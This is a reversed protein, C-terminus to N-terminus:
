LTLGPGLPHSSTSVTFECIPGIGLKIESYTYGRETCAWLRYVEHLLRAQALCNCEERDVTDQVIRWYHDRGCTM